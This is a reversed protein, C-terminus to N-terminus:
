SNLKISELYVLYIFGVKFANLVNIWFSNTKQNNNRRYVFMSISETIIIYGLAISPDWYSTQGISASVTSGAFFGALLAIILVSLKRWPNDFFNNLRNTVNSTISNLRTQQM